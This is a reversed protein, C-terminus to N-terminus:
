WREGHHAPRTFEIRDGANPSGALSRRLRDRQRGGRCVNGVRRVLEFSNNVLQNVLKVVDIGNICLVDSSNVVNKVGRVM